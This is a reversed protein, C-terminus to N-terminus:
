DHRRENAKNRHKCIKMTSQCTYDGTKTLRLLHKRWKTFPLTQPTKSTEAPCFSRKWKEDKERGWALTTHAEGRRLHLLCANRLLTHCIFARGLLFMSFVKWTNVESYNHNWLIVSIGYIENCFSLFILFLWLVTTSVKTAEATRRFRHPAAGMLHVAQQWGSLAVAQLPWPRSRRWQRLAVLEQEWAEQGEM